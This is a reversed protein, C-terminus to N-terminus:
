NTYQWSKKKEDERIRVMVKDISNVVTMLDFGKESYFDDNAMFRIAKIIDEDKYGAKQLMKTARAQKGWNAIRVNLLDEILYGCKHVCRQKEIPLRNSVGDKKEEVINGASVMNNIKESITSKFDRIDELWTDQAEFIDRISIKPESKTFFQTALEEAKDKPSFIWYLAKGDTTKGIFKVLGIFSSALLYPALRKDKVYYNNENNM